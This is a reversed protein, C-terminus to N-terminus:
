DIIRVEVNVPTVKADPAVVEVAAKGVNFGHLNADKVYLSGNMLFTDPCKLTEFAVTNSTRGDIVQIAM